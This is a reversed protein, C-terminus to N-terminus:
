AFTILPKLMGDAKTQMMGFVKEIEALKFRHTTM